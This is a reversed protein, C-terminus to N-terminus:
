GGVGKLRKAEAAFLDLRLRRAKDQDTHKQARTKSLRIEKNCGARRRAPIYPAGARKVVPASASGVACNPAGASGVTNALTPKNTKDGSLPGIKGLESGTKIVLLRSYITKPVGYRTFLMRYSNERKRWGDSRYFVDLVKRSILHAIIRKTQGESLRVLDAFVKNSLRCPTGPLCRFAVLAVIMCEAPTLRHKSEVIEANEFQNSKIFETAAQESDFQKTGSRQRASKDSGKGWRAEWRSWSFELIERAIGLFRFQDKDADLISNIIKAM